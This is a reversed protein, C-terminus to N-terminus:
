LMRTFHFPEICDSITMVRLCSDADNSVAVALVNLLQLEPIPRPVPPNVSSEFVHPVSVLRLDSLASLCLLAMPYMM